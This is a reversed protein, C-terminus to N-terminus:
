RRLELVLRSNAQRILDLADGHNLHSTVRGNLKHVEDGVQVGAREARSLRNIQFCLSRTCSQVSSGYYIYMYLAFEICSRIRM